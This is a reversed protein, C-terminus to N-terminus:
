HIKGSLRAVSLLPALHIKGSKIGERLLNQWGSEETVILLDAIAETLVRNMEEPMNRDVSRLGAKVHAVSIGLKVAPLAAGLNFDPRSIEPLFPSQRSGPFM